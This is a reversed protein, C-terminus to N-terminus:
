CTAVCIIVMSSNLFEADAQQFNICVTQYGQQEAHHLIRKMLSSKGMQRPAKVRILADTRFIAEYCDTEIPPREVYFASNLPVQGDPEELSFASTTSNPTVQEPKKPLRIVNRDGGDEIEGRGQEPSFNSTGSDAGKSINKPSKLVPTSSEPIGELDIIELFIISFILRSTCLSFGLIV